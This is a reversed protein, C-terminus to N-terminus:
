AFHDIIIVDAFCFLERREIICGRVKLGDSILWGDREYDFCVLGWVVAFILALSYLITRAPAKPEPREM